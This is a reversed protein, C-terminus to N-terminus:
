AVVLRHGRTDSAILGAARGADVADRVWRSSVALTEVLEASTARGGAEAIAAVVAQVSAGGGSARLRESRIFRDVEAVGGLVAVLREGRDVDSAAIPPRPDSMATIGAEAAADLAAWTVASDRSGPGAIRRLEDLDAAPDELLGWAVLDAPSRSELRGSAAVARGDALDGLAAVALRRIKELGIAARDLRDLDAM